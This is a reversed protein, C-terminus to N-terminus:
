FKWGQLHYITSDLSCSPCTWKLSEAAYPNSVKERAEYQEIFKKLKNALEFNEERLQKNREHNEQMQTQIEGITTQFCSM